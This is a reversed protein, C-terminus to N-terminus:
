GARLLAGITAGGNRWRRQVKTTAEAVTLKAQARHMPFGHHNVRGGVGRGPGRKLGGRRLDSNAV